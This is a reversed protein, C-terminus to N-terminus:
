RSQRLAALMLVLWRERNPPTALTPASGVLLYIDGVTIDSRLDGDHKASEILAQFARKARREATRSGSLGPSTALAKLAAQSVSAEVAERLLADLEDAAHAGQAVRQCAAEIQRVIQEVYESVVAAVLDAKTPYHRYLTGVAVGAASAIETMGVDPGHLMILDRAAGIIKQRNRVADARGQRPQSVLSTRGGPRVVQVFM